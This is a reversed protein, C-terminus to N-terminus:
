ILGLKKLQEAQQQHTMKGFARPDFQEQKQAAPTNGGSEVVPPTQKVHAKAAEILQAIKDQQAQPQGKAEYYEQKAQALFSDIFAVDGSNIRAVVKSAEAYPMTSLKSDAFQYISGWEPDSAHRELMSNLQAQHTSAQVVRGKIDAVIDAMVVQHRKNLEDYPEKMITEFQKSAAEELQEYYSQVPDVQTQPQQQQVPQQITPQQFQPQTFQNRMAEIEALATELQKQKEALTQTGRTFGAQMSKYWAQMEPPIRNPDLKDSEWNLRSMEEPTYFPVQEPQQTTQTNDDRIILNGNADIAFDFDDAGQPQQNTDTVQKGITTDGQPQVESFLQLDFYNTIM